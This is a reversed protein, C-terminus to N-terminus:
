YPAPVFATKFIRGERAMRDFNPTNILTNLPGDGEFTAYARAYRGWDDAFAFVINPKM